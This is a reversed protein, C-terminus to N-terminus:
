FGLTVQSYSSLRVHATVKVPEPLTAIRESLGDPDLHRASPGMGILARVEAHTLSLSREHVDSARETFWPELSAAVRDEKSPDVTLLDLASVLEGLHAGTPTVVLLAGDPALVRAFEPGNRPAFVNILVRAARDAVPLERWADGLVAGARPHAHAAKRLAAKSVDVALGVAEPSSDLLAALHYGTGAGVDVVLGETTRGAAALATAIFDYHGAALFADRASVMEASDGHHSVPGATLQVYGQKAQDFSHGGPCRLTTEREALELRCLPCRLYPLVDALM